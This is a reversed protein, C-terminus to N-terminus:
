EPEETELDSLNDIRLSDKLSDKIEIKIRKIAANNMCSDVRLMIFFMAVFGVFVLIKFRM